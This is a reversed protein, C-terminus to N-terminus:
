YAWINQNIITVAIKNKMANNKYLSSLKKM